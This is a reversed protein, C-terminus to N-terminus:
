SLVNSPIALGFSNVMQDFSPNVPVKRYIDVVFGLCLPDFVDLSSLNRGRERMYLFRTKMSRAQSQDFAFDLPGTM